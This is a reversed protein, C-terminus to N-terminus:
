CHIALWITVQQSPTWRVRHKLHPPLCLYDGTRLHQPPRETFELIAEGQLLLIWETHPQDYWDGAPTCHGKSLIREIRVRTNSFLSQFLENPLLPPLDNFINAM